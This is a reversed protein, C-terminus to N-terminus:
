DKKNENTKGKVKKKKKDKQDIEWEDLTSAPLKGTAIYKPLKM